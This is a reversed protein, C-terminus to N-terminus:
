QEKTESTVSLTERLIRTGKGLLNSKIMMLSSLKGAITQDTPMTGPQAEVECTITIIHKPM